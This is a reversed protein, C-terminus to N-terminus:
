LTAPQVDITFTGCYDIGPSDDHVFYPPHLHQTFQRIVLGSIVSNYDYITNALYVRIQLDTSTNKPQLPIYIEGGDSTNDWNTVM